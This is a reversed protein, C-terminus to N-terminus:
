IQENTTQLKEAPTIGFGNVFENDVAMIYVSLFSSGGTSIDELSHIFAAPIITLPVARQPENLRPISIAAMFVQSTLANADPLFHVLTLPSFLHIIVYFLFLFHNKLTNVGKLLYYVNYVFCGCRNIVGFPGDLFTNNWLNKGSGKSGMILRVM